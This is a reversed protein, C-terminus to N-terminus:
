KKMGYYKEIESSYEYIFEIFKKPYTVLTTKDSRKYDLSSITDWITKLLTDRVEAKNNIEFDKLVLKVLVREDNIIKGFMQYQDIHFKNLNIDLPQLTSLFGNNNIILERKPSILADRVNSKNNKDSDDKKYNKVYTIIYNWNNDIWDVFDIPNVGKGNSSYDITYHLDEIVKEIKLKTDKTATRKDNDGDSLQRVIDKVLEIDYKILKKYIDTMSEKDTKNIISKIYDLNNIIWEIFTNPEISPYGIEKVYEKIKLKTSNDVTKAHNHPNTIQYAIDRVLEINNEIVDNLSEIKKKPEDGKSKYKTVLKEMELWNDGVWEAFDDPNITSSINNEKYDAPYGLDNLEREAKFWMATSLIKNNSPSSMNDMIHDVLPPDYEALKTFAEIQKKTYNFDNKSVSKTPEGEKLIADLHKDANKIDDDDKEIDSPNIGTTVYRKFAELNGINTYVKLTEDTSMYIDFDIIRLGFFEGEKDKSFYMEETEAFDNPNLCEYELDELIDRVLFFEDEMSVYDDEEKPKNIPPLTYKSSTPSNYITTTAPKHYIINGGGTGYNNEWNYKWDYRYRGISRTVKSPDRKVPLSEWDIKIAAEVLKELHEIDQTENHTHELKYGVSLNTCEPITELFVGSDCWMGTTDEKYDLGNKKFEAELAKVFESSCCETYMQESIISTHAKRDFAVCKDFQTFFDKRSKLAQKSGWTGTPSTVGEEGRFFYYTGPINAEMMKIMITIGAKDDGGLTTTGDTKIINNEIVHWVRKYERCHTDLHGCFMVKSDGIKKFYNGNGDVEMDSPFFKALTKEYNFPIQMKTLNLFLQKVSGDLTYDIEEWEKVPVDNKPTHAFIGSLTSKNRNRREARKKEIETKDDPIVVWDNGLKMMPQGHSNYMIIKNNIRDNPKGKRNRRKREYLQKYM